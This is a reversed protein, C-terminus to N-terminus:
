NPKELECWHSPELLMDLTPPVSWFCPSNNNPDYLGIIYSDDDDFYLLYEKEEIPLGVHLCKEWDGRDEDNYWVGCEELRDWWTQDSPSLDKLPEFIKDIKDWNIKHWKYNM